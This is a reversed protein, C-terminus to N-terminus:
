LPRSRPARKTQHGVNRGALGIRARLGRALINRAANEDRDLVLGCHRCDHMRVSLDKRVESGCGSCQQSTGRAEVEVYAIGASEAKCRLTLLFGSWGADSIARSLRGNKLMGLVNLGEAAILGHRRVLKLAVQHHHEQRLDKVRAHAKCLKQVAKRRNKGGKTKRSVSRGQRRLDPLADKLYRPNPEKEGESTTLFSALGVDVGVPPRDSPLVPVDPLECSFVVYWKDAERKLTVTQIRGEIRRHLTVRVEGVGQVRLQVGQLRLGDGYSPFEVSEFRDRNQFRPYGPKEGAQARRFFATYAHDLRRM